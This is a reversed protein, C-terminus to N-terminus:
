DRRIELTHLLGGQESGLLLRGQADFVIAESQAGKVPLPIVERAELALAGEDDKVLAAVGIASSEDSLLWLLGTAPEVAVDSLDDLADELAAPLDLIVHDDLDDPTFLGVCRPKRENVLVLRDRQEPNMAKPLWAVGEWGKKKSEGARPLRGLEVPEGLAGDKTLAIRHLRRSNESVVYLSTGDGSATLGEVGELAGIGGFHAGNAGLEAVGLEDDAVYLRGQAIALGSLEPVGTERVQEIVLRTKGM